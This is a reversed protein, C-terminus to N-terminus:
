GVDQWRRVDGPSMGFRRRFAHSFSVYNDFGCLHAVQSLSLARDFPAALRQRARDLRADRIAAAVGRREYFARYLKSRSVGITRRLTAGDFSSDHLMKAIGKNALRLM